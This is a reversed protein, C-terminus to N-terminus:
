INDKEVKTKIKIGKSLLIGAVIFFLGVFTSIEIKEKLIVSILILSIFPALYVISSITATSKAYKLASLWLLFTLGMEFAGIYTSAFVSNMSPLTHDGFIIFLISIYIAGFFFNTFLKISADRKDKVNWIWYIAWIFASLFAFGIGAPNSFNLSTIEGRSAIILVGLFSILLALLNFLPLKQKLLPISLLSLVIVWTYNLSLAEQAPLFDYAIFLAIYYAVPNFFGLALSHLVEKKSQKFLQPVQKKILIAIFLFCFSAITSYFVLDLPQLERLAIEFATAVTSWCLVASIGFLYSKRTNVM